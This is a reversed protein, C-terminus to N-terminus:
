RAWAAISGFLATHALYPLTYTADVTVPAHALAQTADGDDRAVVAREGTALLRLHEALLEASSRRETGTDDWEVTLAGLGRQADAVSEAVVAVGEEIGVVAVVGPEALAAQDDM